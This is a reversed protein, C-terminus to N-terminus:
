AMLASDILKQRASRIQLHHSHSAHPNYLPEKKHRKAYHGFGGCYSCKRKQKEKTLQIVTGTSTTDINLFGKVTQVDEFIKTLLNTNNSKSTENSNPYKGAFRVLLTLLCLTAGCRQCAIFCTHPMNQCHWQNVLYPILCDLCLKCDSICECMTISMANTLSCKFPNSTVSVANKSCAHSSCKVTELGFDVSFDMNDLINQKMITRDPEWGIEQLNFNNHREKLKYHDVYTAGLSLDYECNPVTILDHLESLEDRLTYLTNIKKLFDNKEVLSLSRKLNLRDRLKFIKSYTHNVRREYTKKLVEFVGQVM